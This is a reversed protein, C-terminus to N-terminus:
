VHGRDHGAGQRGRERYVFLGSLAALLLGFAVFLANFPPHFGGVVILLGLVGSMIWGYRNTKEPGLDLCGVMTFGLVFVAVGAILVFPAGGAALLCGRTLWIAMGALVVTTLALNKM